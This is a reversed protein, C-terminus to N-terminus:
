LYFLRKDMGAKCVCNSNVGKFDAERKHAINFVFFGEEYQWYKRVTITSKNLLLM